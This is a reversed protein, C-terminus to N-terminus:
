PDLHYRYIGKLIEAKLLEYGLNLLNNIPGRAGRKVRITNSRGLHEFYYKFFESSAQAEITLLHRDSKAQDVRFLCSELVSHPYKYHKLFELQNQIKKKILSRAIRFGKRTKYQSIRIEPSKQIDVPVIFSVPKGTDSLMLVDIGYTSAWFLANTSVKNGSTINIYDVRHVPVRVKESRDKGYVVFERKVRDFSLTEGYEKLCIEMNM